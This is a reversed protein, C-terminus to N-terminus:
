NIKRARDFGALLCPVVPCCWLGSTTDAYRIRPSLCSNRLKVGAGALVYDAAGTIPSIALRVYLRILLCFLFLTLGIATSIIIWGGHHTSDIFEAPASQGPPIVPHTM